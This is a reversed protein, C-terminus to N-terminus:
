AMTRAGRSAGWGKVLALLAAALAACSIATRARHWTAWRALEADLQGPDISAASFSANASEFYLFYTAVAAFSLAASLVALWGGPRRSWLAALAALLALLAAVATLPGFFGLLREDNAAYWAFFEAPPLSRWYPVLVGAETCMAGAFIGLAAVSLLCLLDALNRLV